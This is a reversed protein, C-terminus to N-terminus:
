LDRGAGRRGRSAATQRLRARREAAVACARVTRELLRKAGREPRATTKDIYQTGARAQAWEGVDRGMRKDHELEGKKYGQQGRDHQHGDVLQLGFEREIIGAAIQARREDYVDEWVNGNDSVVEAAIHIHDLGEANLGHHDAEWRVAAFNM